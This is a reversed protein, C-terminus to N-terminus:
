SKIVGSNKWEMPDASAVPPAVVGLQGSGVSQWEGAQRNEAALRGIQAVPGFASVDVVTGFM